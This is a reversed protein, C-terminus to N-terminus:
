PTNTLGFTLAGIAFTVLDGSAAGISAAFTGWWSYRAASDKLNAGVVTAAPMPGFTVAASNAISATATDGSTTYTQDAYSGGVVATGNTTATPATTTLEVKCPTTPEVYATGRVSSNIIRAAEATKLGSGM